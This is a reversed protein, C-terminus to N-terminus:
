ADKLPTSFFHTQHASRQEGMLATRYDSAPVEADADAQAPATPDRWILRGNCVVQYLHRGQAALEERLQPVLTSLLTGEAADADHMAIWALAGESTSELHLNWPPREPTARFFQEPAAGALAVLEQPESHPTEIPAVLVPLRQQAPPSVIPILM